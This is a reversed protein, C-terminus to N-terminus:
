NACQDLVQIFATLVDESAPGRCKENYLSILTMFATEITKFDTEPTLMKILPDLHQEKLDKVLM